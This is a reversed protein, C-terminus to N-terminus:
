PDAPPRDGARYYDLGPVRGTWDIPRHDFRYQLRGVVIKWATGFYERVARWEPGTGWAFHTATVLTRDPGLPQLTFEVVTRQDQLPGFHTPANWSVLLRRHPEMALIRNGEGGRLGAPREPEFYIEYAGGIRPEVRAAPGFYEVVGRQSTLADWLRAPTARVEGSVTVPAIQSSAPAVPAAAAAVMLAAACTM